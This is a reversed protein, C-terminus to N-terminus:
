DTLVGCVIRNIIILNYIGCFAVTMNNLIVSVECNEGTYGLQCICSYIQQHKMSSSSGGVSGSRWRRAAVCEGGNKCPNGAGAAISEEDGGCPDIETRCNRGIIYSGVFLLFYM